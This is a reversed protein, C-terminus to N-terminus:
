HGKHKKRHDAEPAPDTEASSGVYVVGMLPSAEAEENTGQLQQPVKGDLHEALLAM